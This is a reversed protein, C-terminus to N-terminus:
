SKVNVSAALMAMMSRNPNRFTSVSSRCKRSRPKSLSGHDAGTSTRSVGDNKCGGRGHDRAPWQLLLSPLHSSGPSRARTSGSSNLTKREATESQHVGYDGHAPTKM